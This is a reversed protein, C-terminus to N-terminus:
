ALEDHKVVESVGLVGRFREVLEPPTLALRPSVPGSRLECFVRLLIRETPDLLLADLDEADNM